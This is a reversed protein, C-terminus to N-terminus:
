DQMAITQILLVLTQGVTFQSAIVRLGLSPLREKSYRSLQNGVFFKGCLAVFLQFSTVVYGFKRDSPVANRTVMM